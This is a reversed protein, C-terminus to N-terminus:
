SGCNCPRVGVGSPEHLGQIACFACYGEADVAPPHDPMEMRVGCKECEQNKSMETRGKTCARDPRAAKLLRATSSDSKELLAGVCDLFGACRDYSGYYIYQDGCIIEFYGSKARAASMGVGSAAENLFTLELDM